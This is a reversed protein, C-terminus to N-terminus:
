FTTGVYGGVNASPDGAVTETLDAAAGIQYGSLDLGLRLRQTAFGLGEESLSTLTEASTALGLDDSLPAGYTVKGIHLVDFSGDVPVSVLNFLTLGDGAYFHQIGARPMLGAGPAADVEGFVSVGEGLSYAVSNVSFSGVEGDYDSTIRNRSLVSVDGDFVLVKADLTGSEQGVMLEVAGHAVPSEPGDAQAVSPGVTATGIATALGAALKHKTYMEKLKQIM